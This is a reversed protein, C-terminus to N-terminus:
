RAMAMMKADVYYLFNGYPVDPPATHDITPIYSAERM